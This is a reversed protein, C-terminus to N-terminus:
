PQFICRISSLVTIDSVRNFLHYRIDTSKAGKEVKFIGKGVYKFRFRHRESLAQLAEYTHEWKRNIRIVKRSLPPTRNELIVTIRAITEHVGSDPNLLLLAIKEEAHDRLFDRLDNTNKNRKVQLNIPSGNLPFMVLNPRVVFDIGARDEPSLHLTRDFGYILRLHEMQGLATTTISEFRSAPYYPDM